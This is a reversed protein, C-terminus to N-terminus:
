FLGQQLPPEVPKTVPQPAVAAVLVYAATKARTNRTDDTQRIRPERSRGRSDLYQLEENVRGCVTALPLGTGVAIEDRTAGRSGQQWVFDVVRERGTRAKGQAKVAAARSTHSRRQYATTM